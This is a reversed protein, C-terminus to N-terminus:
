IRQAELGKTTMFDKQGMRGIDFIDRNMALAMTIAWEAVAHTPGDPANVIAIGKATAYEWAPIFDKYGIGPFAIVKLEDAADIIKETAQEIGGLIYAVKGKIAKILEEESPKPKDIREIEYGAARLQDEHEKLIFLSDTILIKNSM